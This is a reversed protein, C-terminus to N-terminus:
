EKLYEDIIYTLNKYGTVMEGIVLIDINYDKKIENLYFESVTTFSNKNQMKKNLLNTVGIGTIWVILGKIYDEKIYSDIFKNTANVLNTTRHELLEIDYQNYKYVLSKIDEKYKIEDSIMLLIKNKM